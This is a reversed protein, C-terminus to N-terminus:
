PGSTALEAVFDYSFNQFNVLVKADAGIVVHHPVFRVGYAGLQESRLVGGHALGTLEHRQAFAECEATGKINLLVVNIRRGHPGRAFSDMATAADSCAPCSASYFGLLTAQKGNKMLERLTTNTVEAEGGAAREIMGIDLPPCSRGPLDAADRTPSRPKPPSVHSMEADLWSAFFHSFSAPGAGALNQM